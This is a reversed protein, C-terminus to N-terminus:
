RQPRWQSYSKPVIHKVRLAHHILDWGRGEIAHEAVGDAVSEGAKGALPNTAGFNRDFQHIPLRDGNHTGRETHQRELVFSREHRQYQIAMYPGASLQRERERKSLRGAARSHFIAASSKQSSPTL